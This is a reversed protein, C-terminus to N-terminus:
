PHPRENRDRRPEEWDFMKRSEQDRFSEDLHCATLHPRGDYGVRKMEPQLKMCLDMAYSCRPHFLCGQPPMLLSPPSGPISHLRRAQLNLRPLCSMLGWTYPHSPHEFIADVSGREVMRGAYMVLVDDCVEAIVGM